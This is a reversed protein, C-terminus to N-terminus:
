LNKKRSNGIASIRNTTDAVDRQVKTLLDTLKQFDSKKEVLVDEKISKRKSPIVKAISRFFCHFMNRCFGQRHYKESAQKAETEDIVEDYATNIIALFVNILNVIVIIEFFFTFLPGTLKNEESLETADIGTEIGTIVTMYSVGFSRFQMSTESFALYGSHGFALLLIFFMFFFFLLEMGGRAFTNTLFEIRPNGQLYKLLKLWLLFANVSLLCSEITFLNVLQQVSHYETATVPDLGDYIAYHVLRFSGVCIFLICNIIDIVNWFQKWYKRCGLTKMEIIEQIMYYGVFMCVMVELFAQFKGLANHYRNIKLVSVNAKPWAGGGHPFEVTCRCIMHLNHPANYQQWDIFVVRVADDIFGGDRMDALKAQALTLNMPITEFYGSGPYFAFQGWYSNEFDDGEWEFKNNPGYPDTNMVSYDFEAYCPKGEVEVGTNACADPEVRVTRLRIGLLKSNHPYYLNEAPIPEGNAYTEELLFPLLVHELFSWTEDVDVIQFYSKAAYTNGEKWTSTLVDESMLEKMYYRHEEGRDIWTALSFCIMFICYLIFESKTIHNTSKQQETLHAM